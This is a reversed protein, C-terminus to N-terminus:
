PRLELLLQQAKEFSPALELARLVERRAAARDGADRYAAALQYLAEARDTPGLALVAQHELVARGPDGARGAATAADRHLDPDYPHIFIARDYAALAGAWDRRAARLAGLRRSPEYATENRRVARELYAIARTTDGKLQYLRALPWAPGDADAMEPFLSDAKAYAAIAADAKGERDLTAASALLRDIEGPAATTDRLVGVANAVPGFRAELWGSFRRDLETASGGTGARIAADNGGGERFAALMRVIAEQGFTHELFECLLSAQYYALTVDAPGRPRVFGDNLREVPNLMRGKWAAVFTRSPGAGWGPRARREELVSLGETLWRPVKHGSAGLTFAHTLEHWATSGWNFEGPPRASPADMALVSGFSVGLAGIGALGVTRVSFDAHRRYLEIRVPTPPRYRYRAALSDYARELLPGLYLALLDAEEPAAVFQFRGSTVTRYKAVEDLLDLTNKNWVHYPDRAFAREIASRGREIQGLRLLNTGLATLAAPDDGDAAVGKAAVEAAAQYERQRGLAEAVAAYFPAPAQHRAAVAAEVRRFGASDGRILVVTAATAWAGLDLSDLGIARAAVAAASDLAEADLDSRAKLAYAAALGPAARLVQELQGGIAPNGNFQAVTALGLLARGNGPDRRLAESFAAKADPGNYKALFLDGLRLHAELLGSDAAAARDYATLADKFQAPSRRGLVQYAIGLALWERAPHDGRSELGRAVRDAAAEAARHDGRRALQEALRAAALATVPTTAAAARALLSEAVVSRGRLAAAEGLLYAVAPEGRRAQLRELVAEARGRHLDRMVAAFDDGSQGTTQGACTAAVLATVVLAATPFARRTM